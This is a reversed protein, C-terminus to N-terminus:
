AMRIVASTDQANKIATLILELDFTLLFFGEKYTEILYQTPIKPFRSILTTFGRVLYERKETIELVLNM